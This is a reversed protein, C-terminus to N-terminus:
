IKDPVAQTPMPFYFGTKGTGNVKLTYRIFGANCGPDALSTDAYTDWTKGDDKSVHVYRYGPGNVRSNIMWSGDALEVIKSEDAPTIAKDILFWSKGHDNSGFVFGGISLNFITHLLTGSSTQIGDGSTMFVADNQWSSKKIQSTIDVPKSWTKGNDSSKMVREHYVGPQTNLNMYNFFLFVDDTVKDVIISPDDISEGDPYDVLTKMTTWTAGNDTSRRLVLNINRNADMDNCSPVRQTAVAVLDGNPATAISPIRYCAVKSNTSADFLKLDQIPGTSPLDHEPINICANLFMILLFLLLRM